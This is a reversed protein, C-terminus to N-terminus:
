LEIYGCPQQTSSYDTDNVTDHFIGQGSSNETPVLDLVKVNSSNYVEIESLAISSGYANDYAFLRTQNHYRSAATGQYTVGDVKMYSPALEIDMWQGFKIPASVPINSPFYYLVYNDNVKYTQFLLCGENWYGGLILTNNQPAFVMLKFKFTYNGDDYIPLTIAQNGGSSLCPITEGGTPISAIAEPWESPKFGTTVGLKTNLAESTSEALTIPIAGYDSNAM